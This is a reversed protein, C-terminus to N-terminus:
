MALLYRNALLLLLAILKIVMMAEKPTITPVAAKNMMREPNEPNLVKLSVKNSVESGSILTLETM